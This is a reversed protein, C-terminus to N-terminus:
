QLEALVKNAEEVFKAGANLAVAQRLAQKSETSEKLQYHAMGLYYFLDADTARKGASEKLLQAARKFDGRRYVVIGLTKAVEPDDPYAERAKLAPEYAHQYDALREAYLAALLKNAPAFSPFRALTKECALKAGNVNGQQQYIAVAAMLAPVYNPDAKLIEQIQAATQQAKEPQNWLPSLALFRRAEESRAFTAGTQLVKQMTAEADAINGLSYHAWALDYLAEPNKGLARAGEQLLSLSWKFDGAQYALRGLAHAVTGDDPALERAGKTLELAKKANNFRDAYLRALQLTASVNKPNLKLAREYLDRAKEFAGDREHIAGLRALAFWTIAYAPVSPLMVAVHTGHEVGRARLANACKVTLTAFQAHSIRTSDDISIWFPADRFDRAADDVLEALTSKPTM